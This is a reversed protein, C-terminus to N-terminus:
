GMYRGSAKERKIANFPIWSLVLSCCNWLVLFYASIPTFHPVVLLCASRTAKLLFFFSSVSFSFLPEASRKKNWSYMQKTTKGHFKPHFRFITMNWIWLIFYWNPNSEIWTAYIANKQRPLSNVWQNRELIAASPLTTGIISQIGISFVSTQNAQQLLPM